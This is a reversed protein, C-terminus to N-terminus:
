GLTITYIHRIGSGSQTTLTLATNSRTTNNYGTANLSNVISNFVPLPNSIPGSFHIVISIPVQTTNSTNTMNVYTVKLPLQSTNTFVMTATANSAGLQVASAVNNEENENIIVSAFILVVALIIAVLLIYEVSIQARQDM